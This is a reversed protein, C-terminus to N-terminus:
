IPKLPNKNKIIRNSSGDRWEGNIYQSALEKFNMKM